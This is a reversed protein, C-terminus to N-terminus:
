SCARVRGVLRLDHRADALDHEPPLQRRQEVHLVQRGVVHPDRELELPVGVLPHHQRIQELVRRELGVEGDVQGAEDRGFLRLDAAGLAQVELRQEPVEQVEAELDHRAPELVLLRRKARRIWTRSPNAFTKSARSSIRRITRFDSPFCSAAAFIM